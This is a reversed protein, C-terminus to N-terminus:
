RPDSAFWRLTALYVMEHNARFYVLRVGASQRAFLPEPDGDGFYTETTIERVLHEPLRRRGLEEVEEDSLRHEPDALLNFTRAGQSLSVFSDYIGQAIYVPVGNERAADLYTMPSRKLCEDQAPGAERPDGGCARWLDSAYHRGAARSQRYFDILDSPPGWAAVATVKDPHRGALLLSMMGGGSYGVAYVRNPDVGDQSTAYDIADAADQVALESGLADPGNNIGRFNPAIVAWGNEQAFMAFPIGAHQQYHASWSHLIVLLPRDGDANPPLWLAPQETGDITSTIRIDEIGPVSRQWRSLGRATYGSFERITNTREVSEFTPPPLPVLTTTTTTVDPTTSTAGPVTTTTTADDDPSTAKTGNPGHPGAADSGSADTTCAPLALLVVLLAAVRTRSCIRPQV